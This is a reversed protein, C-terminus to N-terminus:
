SRSSDTRESSLGTSNVVRVENAIGDIQEINLLLEQLVQKLYFSPVCGQLTLIGDNVQWTVKDFIFSYPCAAIRRRVAQDITAHALQDQVPSDAKTLAPRRNDTLAIM